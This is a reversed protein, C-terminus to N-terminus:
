LPEVWSCIGKSLNDCMMKYAETKSEIPKKTITQGKRFCLVAHCRKGEVYWFKSGDAREIAPEDDRHLQNKQYWEKSGNAHAHEVAPGDLRHLQGNQYWRKTGDTYEIAPGDLRHLQGNQYWRKTGDAHEFAPGDLRHLQGQKNRWVKNGNEIKMTSETIM